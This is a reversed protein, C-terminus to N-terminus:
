LFVLSMLFYLPFLTFPFIHLTNPIQLVKTEYYKTLKICRLNIIRFSSNKSNTNKHGSSAAGGFSIVRPGIFELYSHKMLKIVRSSNLFSKEM